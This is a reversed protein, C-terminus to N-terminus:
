KQTTQKAARIVRAAARRYQQSTWELNAALRYLPSNQPPDLRRISAAAEEMSQVLTDCQEDIGEPM